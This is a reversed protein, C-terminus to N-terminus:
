GQAARVGLHAGCSERVILSCERIQSYAAERGRLTAILEEVAGSGHDFPHLDVTSLPPDLYPTFFQNDCGILAMEEPVKVGMRQLQRLAGLAVLDNIAIMATPWQSRDAGSLLRNVTWEGAQPTFGADSIMEQDAPLDLREMEEYYARRRASSSRIGGSGGIFSIRRHGLAVLHALSKRVSLSLDSTINVCDVGEVRPGITVIPMKQRILSLRRRIEETTGMEMAHGVIVAGAASQELVQSAVTDEGWGNMVPQLVMLSFGAQHATQEAGALLASYYPNMLDSIVLLLAGTGGADQRRPVTTQYGIEQAAEEVKQRATESASQGSLVRSVTAISVGAQRAVDVITPRKQLNKM